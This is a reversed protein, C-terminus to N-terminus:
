GDGPLSHLPLGARPAGGDDIHELGAAPIGPGVVNPQAKVRVLKDQQRGGFFLHHAPGQGVQLVMGPYGVPNPGVHDVDVAAAGIAVFGAGQFMQGPFNSVQRLDDALAQGQFVVVPDIGGPVQQGKAPVGTDGQDIIDVWWRQRGSPRLTSSVVRSAM